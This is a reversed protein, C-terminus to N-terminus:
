RRDPEIAVMVRDRMPDVDGMFAETDDRISSAFRLCGHSAAGWASLRAEMPHDSFIRRGDVYPDGRCVRRARVETPSRAIGM